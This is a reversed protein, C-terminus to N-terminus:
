QLLVQKERRYRIRWGTGLEGEQVQNQKQEGRMYRNRQASKHSLALPPRQALAGSVPLKAFLPQVQDTSATAPVNLSCRAMIPM